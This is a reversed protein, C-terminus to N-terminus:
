PSRPRTDAVPRRHDSQCRRIPLIAAGHIRRLMALAGHIGVTRLNPRVMTKGAIHTTQSLTAAPPPEARACHGPPPVPHTGCDALIWRAARCPTGPTMGPRAIKSVTCAAARSAPQATPPSGNPPHVGERAHGQVVGRSLDGFVLFDTISASSRRSPSVRARYPNQTIGMTVGSRPMSLLNSAQLPRKKGAYLM